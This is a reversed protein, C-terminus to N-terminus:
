QRHLPKGSRQYEGHNQKGDSALLGRVCLAMQPSFFLVAGAFVFIFSPVQTIAGFIGTQRQTLSNGVVRGCRTM